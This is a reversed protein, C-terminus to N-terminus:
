PKEKQKKKDEEIQKKALEVEAPTWLCKHKSYCTSLDCPKNPFMLCKM